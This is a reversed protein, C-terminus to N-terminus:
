KLPIPLAQSVKERGKFVAQFCFKQGNNDYSGLWTYAVSYLMHIACTESSESAAEKETLGIFDTPLYLCTLPADIHWFLASLPSEEHLPLRPKESIYPNHM